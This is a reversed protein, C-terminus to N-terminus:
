DPKAVDRSRPRSPSEISIPPSPGARAVRTRSISHSRGGIWEFGRAAADVPRPARLIGLAVRNRIRSQSRRFATASRSGSRTKWGLRVSVGGLPRHQGLPARLDSAVGSILQGTAALKESRFLQERMAHQDQLKLSAAAQNALHHVAAQEEPKFYGLKSITISRWFALCMM